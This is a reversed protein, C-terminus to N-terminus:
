RSGFAFRATVGFERPDTMTIQRYNSVGNGSGIATGGANRVTWPVSYPTAERTLVEQTDLLNKAYAAVEWAGDSARVGFYVNALAYARVTDYPNQPDGKNRGSFSVLGRVFGNVDDTLANTYEARVSASFPSTKAASQSLTCQLVQATANGNQVQALTPAAIPAGNIDVPNCPITANSIKSKAYAMTAAMNFNSSPRYGIEAEIGDVKAPVPTSLGSLTRAPTQYSPAAITGVNNAVFVPAGSLIYGSFDQHFASVNFTVKDDFWNSKFGIEYSKSKEPTLAFLSLLYPDTLTAISISRALIIPNTGSGIRWSSGATAYVMLSENFRHKVSGNWIIPNHKNNAGNLNEQYNIYRVGGAVETAEGLHVTLNGFISREIQRGRRAIVTQSITRFNGPAQSGTFEARPSLLDTSPQLRNIFGGVIYDVMGFLREESSLRVEHSEQKTYTHQFQGYNQLNSSTAPDAAANGPYTNDFFNGKDTPERSLLDQKTYSGVYNLRQGAFSWQGQWNLVDFAQRNIRPVDSVALRDRPQILTGVVPTGLALNASEVQDFIKANKVLHSYTVNFELNSTPTFRASVRVARTKSDPGVFANNISHVRNVDSDDVLGAIRVALVDRLIPANLAANVNVGNITNITGSAYGGYESMDPRRTTLTISGSPSARGRLTGQPGRLVEIQGVDYLSQLVAGASLPADNMYFEVTGNNGSANVDVNLGRLSTVAGTVGTGPSLQLGPVVASIDKADRINLKELTESSVANVTLPVDQISEDRRRASVIIESSVAGEEAPADQALAPTALAFASVGAFALKRVISM